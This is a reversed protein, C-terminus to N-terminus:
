AAVPQLPQSPAKNRIPRPRSYPPLILEEQRPIRRMLRSACIARRELIRYATSGVGHGLAFAVPGAHAIVQLHGPGAPPWWRVRHHSDLSPAAIASAAASRATM